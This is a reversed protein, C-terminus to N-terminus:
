GRKQHLTCMWLLATTCKYLKTHSRFKGDHSLIPIAQARNSLSNFVDDLKLIPQSPALTKDPTQKVELKPVLRHILYAVSELSMICYPSIDTNHSIAKKLYVTQISILFLALRFFLGFVSAPFPVVLCVHLRYQCYHPCLSEPWMHGVHLGKAYLTVAQRRRRQTRGRPQQVCQWLLQQRASKDQVDNFSIAVCEM